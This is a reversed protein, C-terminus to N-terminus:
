EMEAYNIKVYEEDLSPSEMQSHAKHLTNATYALWSAVLSPSRVYDANNKGRLWGSIISILVAASYVRWRAVKSGQRTRKSPIKRCLIVRMEM